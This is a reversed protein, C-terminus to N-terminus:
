RYDLHPFSDTRKICHIPILCKYSEDSSTAVQSYPSLIIIDDVGRRRRRRRGKLRVLMIDWYATVVLPCVVQDPVIICYINIFIWGRRAPLTPGCLPSLSCFFQQVGDFVTPQGRQWMNWCKWRFRWFWEECCSITVHSWCQCNWLRRFNTPSFDM